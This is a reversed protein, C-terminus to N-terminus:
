IQTYGVSYAYELEASTVWLYTNKIKSPQSVGDVVTFFVPYDTNPSDRIFIRYVGM